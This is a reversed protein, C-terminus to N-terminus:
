MSNGPRSSRPSSGSGFLEPPHRALARWTAGAGRRRCMRWVAIRTPSRSVGGRGRTPATCATSTRRSDRSRPSTGPPSPSSSLQPGAGACPRSGRRADHLPPWATTSSSPPPPACTRFPEGAAPHAGGPWGTGPRRWPGGRGDAGFALPRWSRSTSVCPQRRVGRRRPAPRRHGLALLVKSVVALDLPLGLRRRWRPAVPVGGAPRNALSSRVRGPARERADGCSGGPTRGPDLFVGHPRAVRSAHRVPVVSPRWHWYVLLDRGQPSRLSKAVM